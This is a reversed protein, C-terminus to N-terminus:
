QKLARQLLATFEVSPDFVTDGIRRIWQIGAVNCCFVAEADLLDAKKFLGEEVRIDENKMWAIVNKRMVGAVCGSDLSPTFLQRNKLWFLNSAVCEAIFGNTDLLIADDAGAKKRALGAMVYALASGTKFPSVVSHNLRIDEYFIVREKVSVSPPAMPQVTLLFDAEHSAPTYLGGPKRWVHLRVRHTLKSHNFSHILSHTDGDLTSDVNQANGGTAPNEIKALDCAAKQLYDATLGPPVAMELVAMGDTLRQHHDTLFRVTGNQLVMTEFLGDGYQFARNHWDSPTQATDIETFNYVAKM